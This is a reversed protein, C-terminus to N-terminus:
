PLATPVPAAGYVRYLSKFDPRTASKMLYASIQSGPIRNRNLARIITQANTVGIGHGYFTGDGLDIANEGQWEPTEPDVDPNKFYRCDGSLLVDPNRNTAVGMKNDSYLWNMLTLGPFTRDFLDDKFIDLVAKYFVMMIATACETAYRSTHRFVDRIGASPKVDSRIRFGGNRMRDWYAENCESERFTRFRLRGRYLAISADIIRRRLDTEFTLEGMSDYRFERDSESLTRLISKEISRETYDVELDSYKIEKGAIKIM